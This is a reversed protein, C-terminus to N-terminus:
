SELLAFSATNVQVLNHVGHVGILALGADPLGASTRPIQCIFNGALIMKNQQLLFVFSAIAEVAEVSPVIEEMTAASESRDCTNAFLGYIDSTSTSSRSPLSM